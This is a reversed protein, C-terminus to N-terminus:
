DGHKREKRNKNNAAVNIKVMLTNEQIFKIENNKKESKM